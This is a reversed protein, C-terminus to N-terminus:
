TTIRIASDRLPMDGCAFDV